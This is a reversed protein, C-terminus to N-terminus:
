YVNLKLTHKEGDFELIVDKESIEIVTAGGLKDGVKVVDNNVIAYPNNKDWVIGNLIIGELGGSRSSASFSFPSSGWSSFNSKRTRRAAVFLRPEPGAKQFSGPGLNPEKSLERRIKSPTLIGYILSFVAAMSLIILIKIRRNKMM